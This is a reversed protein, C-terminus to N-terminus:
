YVRMVTTTYARCVPCQRQRQSEARQACAGCYARHGCPVSAHTADDSLCIVCVRRDSDAPPAAPSDAGAGACVENELADRAEGFAYLLGGLRRYLAPNKPVYFFGGHPAPACFDLTNESRALGGDWVFVCRTFSLGYRGHRSSMRSIANISVPVTDFFPFFMPNFLYPYGTAIGSQGDFAPTVGLACVGVCEPLYSSLGASIKKNYAFGGEYFVKLFTGLAQMDRDGNPLEAICRDFADLEEASMFNVSDHNEAFLYMDAQEPMGFQRKDLTVPSKPRQTRFRFYLNQSNLTVKYNTNPGFGGAAAISPSSQVEGQKCLFGLVIDLEKRTGQPAREAFGPRSVFDPLALLIESNDNGSRLANAICGHPPFFSSPLKHLYLTPLAITTDVVHPLPRERFRTITGAGDWTVTVGGRRMLAACDEHGELLVTAVPTLTGFSPGEVAESWEPGPPAHTSPEEAFEDQARLRTLGVVSQEDIESNVGTRPTICM